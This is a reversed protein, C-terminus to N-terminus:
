SRLRVPYGVPAGDERTVVTTGERRLVRFREAPAPHRRSGEGKGEGNGGDMDADRIVLGKGTRGPAPTWVELETAGDTRRVPVAAGARALVPIGSLPADLVVEGPGDHVSGNATEYWRGYPLRVPRSRAGEELVPAVLLADGLLFADDCERLPRERPHQWWLPRVYPAGTRHALHALTTFYPRLREREAMAAACGELVEGGFAWPERPGLGKGSHVHFLPFYAALQFWRLYLEPSPAGTSGGIGPGCYPVGCLGLSVVLSLSARLGDWGTPLEGGWTGGERHMGAWGSGVLVFEGEDPAGQVGQTDQTGQGQADQTSQADQGQADPAGQGDRAARTAPVGPSAAENEGTTEGAGSPRPPRTRAPGDSVLRVGEAGLEAALRPLDAPRDRAGRLVRRGGHGTDADLHLARLPLEHERYGAALERLRQAAGAVPVAHQYGLAWGPPLSPAGTLRSWGHLVRAPPGAIVWYRLPGGGMRIESSGARDHGSGRGEQGERVTMRGEGANDHFVLHTGSDAVVLQVPMTIRPADPGRPVDATTGTGPGTGAGAGASFGSSSGPGSGSGVGHLEYSGDPLRPGCTHGGLGFFRADAAVQSRQMWRGYGAPGPPDAYPGPPGPEPVQGNGDGHGRGGGAGPDREEADRRDADREGADQGDTDRGDRERVGSERRVYPQQGAASEWWRPPLDRRLLEGGPTRVEVAGHRSVTLLLRESVVRWGGDKDPELVARADPEPVKGPLARSPGPEAGDWGLFLAGGVAVRVSLSSREFRVVGGGPGPQAGRAPGPM